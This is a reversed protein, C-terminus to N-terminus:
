RYGKSWALEEMRAFVDVGLQAYAHLLDVLVWNERILGNELRWFDLSRLTIRQGTHPLGLWGDGTLTQQMNPWGTVGVYAGEAMFHHSTGEPHQGRDPMAKLFPIQHFRRFEEVGRATGIGAPGYWRFDPHWYRELEMVEPGGQSPHRVMAALMDIVHASSAESLAADHPGLGDQTMPAPAHAFRGLQPVMPWVGAQMMMEPIDWIAQMEVCTDNEIRYFEHFRMSVSRWTAPIGLWPNVWQGTYQGGSGVWMAGDADRGAIRIFEQRELDPLAARLPAYVDAIFADGGHMDGFPHCMRFLASSAIRALASSVDAGDRMATFVPEM